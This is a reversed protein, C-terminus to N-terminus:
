RRLSRPYVQTQNVLLVQDELEWRTYELVQVDFYFDTTWLRVVIPQGASTENGISSITKTSGSQFVLQFLKDVHTLYSKPFM